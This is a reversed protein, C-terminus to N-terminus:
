QQESLYNGERFQKPTIGYKKKFCNQFYPQSSFCLTESIEGLSKDTFRLLSKAEELKCSMIFDSIQFGLEKKFKRSLVSRDMNVAEAVHSVRINQNTHNSIYQIARYISPSMDAPIKREGVRCTFDFVMTYQLQSIQNIDSMKEMAQIYSDSLQYATEIDLGGQISRRTVLTIATIFINKAQQLTNGAVVGPRIPPINRLFCRLGESDGTEVFHLYAQEFPYTNHFAEEEKRQYLESSHQRSVSLWAASDSAFFYEYPNLDKGTMERYLLALMNTVQILSFTPTQRFYEAVADKQKLAICADSMIDPIHNMSVPTSSVPGLWVREGTSPNQVLGVYLYTGTALYCVDQKKQLLQPRYASYFDISEWSSPYPQVMSGCEYQMPFNTCNYLLNCFTIMKPNAESMKTEKELTNRNPRLEVINTVYICYM